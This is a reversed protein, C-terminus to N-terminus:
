REEKKYEPWVVAEAAFIRQQREASRKSLRLADWAEVQSKFPGMKAVDGGSAFWEIPKAKSM